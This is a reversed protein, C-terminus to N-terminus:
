YRKQRDSYSKGKAPAQAQEALKVITDKAEKLEKQGFKAKSQLDEIQQQQLKAESEQVTKLQRCLRPMTM